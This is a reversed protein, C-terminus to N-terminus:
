LSPKPVANPRFYSYAMATDPRQKRWLYFAEAAQELLMGFGDYVNKTGHSKCWQMFATDTDSYLLDYCCTNADIIADPLDLSAQQLGASTAHLVVDYTKTPIVNLACSQLVTYNNFRKVIDEAKQLTRNAIMLEAPQEQLLPEVIGQTAGGAGVILIKKNELQLRLRKKLDRLLGIGDTNAGYFTGDDRVVITNVAGAHQAYNSYGDVFSYADTKFPVTINLGKGGNAFFNNLTKTISDKEALIKEYQIVEGTQDAFLLHIDPSKSHAIPNGLVAYRDVSASTKNKTPM